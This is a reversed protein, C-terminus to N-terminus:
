RRVKKLKLHKATLMAQLKRVNNLHLWRKSWPSYLYYTAESEKSIQFYGGTTKNTLLHTTGYLYYKPKITTDILSCHNIPIATCQKLNM